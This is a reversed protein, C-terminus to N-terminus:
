CCNECSFRVIMSYNMSLHLPSELLKYEYTSLDITKKNKKKLEYYNKDFSSNNRQMNKVIQMVKM